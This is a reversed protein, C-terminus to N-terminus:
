PRGDKRLLEEIRGTVGQLGVAGVHGAAGRLTHFLSIAEAIDDTEMAMRIELSFSRYGAAFRRLIKRYSVRDGLVQRLGIGTDVGAINLKDNDSDIHYTPRLASVPVALVESIIRYLEDPEIPKAIYGSFGAKKINSRVDILASATMAIAPLDPHHQRILSAAEYGSMEPMHLDMLVMDYLRSECANVAEAGSTAIDVELGAREILEKGVQQNIDNDDVLLVRGRLLLSGPRKKKGKKDEAKEGSGIASPNSLASKLRSVSYPLPLSISTVGDPAMRSLEASDQSGSLILVFDDRTGDSLVFAVKAPNDDFADTDLLLVSPEVPNELAEKIGPCYTVKMGLSHLAQRHFEGTVSDGSVIFATKGGEPLKPVTEEPISDMRATFIFRSGKGHESEVRISGGMLEVIHKSITLGLGTGGYKRSTSAEAQRFPSFLRSVQEETMGIG